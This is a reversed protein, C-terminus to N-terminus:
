YGSDRMTLESGRLRVQERWREFLRRNRILREAANQARPGSFYLLAKAVMDREKLSRMRRAADIIEPLSEKDQLRALGLASEFVILINPSALGRLLIPNSRQDAAEGLAQVSSPLEFAAKMM